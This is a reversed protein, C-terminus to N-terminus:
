AIVRRNMDNIAPRLGIAEDHGLRQVRQLQEFDSAVWPMRNVKKQERTLIGLPM